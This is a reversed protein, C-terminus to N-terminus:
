LAISRASVSYGRPQRSTMSVSMGLPAPAISSFSRAALSGTLAYRWKITAAKVHPRGARAADPALQPLTTRTALLRERQRDGFPGGVAHSVHVTFAAAWAAPLARGAMLLSQKNNKPERSHVVM